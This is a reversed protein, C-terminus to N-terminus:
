RWAALLHMLATSDAGGSVAIVAHAHKGLLAEFGGAVEGADLPVATM